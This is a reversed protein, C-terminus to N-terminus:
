RRRRRRRRRYGSVPAPASAAKKPRTVLIVAGVAVAGVMVVNLPSSFFGPRQVPQQLTAPQGFLGTPFFAKIYDLVGPGSSQNLAPTNSANPPADQTMVVPPQPTVLPPNTEVYNAPVEGYSAPDWGFGDGLGKLRVKRRRRKPAVKGLGSFPGARHGVTLAGPVNSYWPRVARQTLPTVEATTTIM